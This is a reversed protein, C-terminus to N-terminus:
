GEEDEQKVREIVERALTIPIPADGKGSLELKSPPEYGVIKAKLTLVRVAAEIAKPDGKKTAPQLSLFMEECRDTDLRRHERAEFSPEREMRRRYAKSCGMKTIGYNPPFTVGEPLSVTPVYEGRGARTLLEAITEFSAVGMRKLRIVEREVWRSILLKTTIQISSRNGRFRGDSHRKM